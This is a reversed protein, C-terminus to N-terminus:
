CYLGRRLVGRLYFLWKPLDIVEMQESATLM